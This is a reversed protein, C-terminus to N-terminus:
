WFWQPNFTDRLIRQVNQKTFCDVRSLHFFFFFNIDSSICSLYSSLIIFDYVLKRKYYIKLIDVSVYKLEPANELDIPHSLRSNFLLLVFTLGFLGFLGFVYMFILLVNVLNILFSIWHRSGLEDFWFMSWVHFYTALMFFEFMWFKTFFLQVFALDM